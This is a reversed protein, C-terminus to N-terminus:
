EVGIFKFPSLYGRELELRKLRKRRVVEGFKEKRFITREWWSKWHIERHIRRDKHLTLVLWAYSLYSLFKRKKLKNCITMKSTNRNKQIWQPSHNFFLLFLVWFSFFIYEPLLLVYGPISKRKRRRQIARIRLDEWYREKSRACALCLIPLISENKQKTSFNTM